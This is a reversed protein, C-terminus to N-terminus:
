ANNDTAEAVPVENLRANLERVVAPTILSGMQKLSDRVSMQDMMKQMQPTIKVSKAVDGYKQIVKEMLPAMFSEYVANAQPNEKVESVSNLISFYGKREIEDDRDFWNTVQTGPQHYAPDPRSVHRIQM